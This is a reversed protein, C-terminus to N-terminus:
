RTEPRDPHAMMDKRDRRDQHDKPETSDRTERNEPIALFGSNEKIERKVSNEKNGKPVLHDPFAWNVAFELNEQKEEQDKPVMTEPLVLSEPSELQGLGEGNEKTELRVEDVKDNALIKVWIGFILNGM